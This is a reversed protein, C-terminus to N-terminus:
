LEFPITYIRENVTIQLYYIGEDLDSIDAIFTTNGAEVEFTDTQVVEDEENYISYTFSTVDGPAVFTITSGIDNWHVSIPCVSPQAPAKNPGGNGGTIPPDDRLVSVTPLTMFGSAFTNVSTFITAMLLVLKIPTKM